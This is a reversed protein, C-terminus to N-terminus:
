EPDSRSVITITLSETATGGSHSPRMDLALESIQKFGAVTFSLANGLPDSLTAWTTGGDNSGQLLVTASDFTGTVQVSRDALGPSRYAVGTTNAHTLPTWVCSEVQTRFTVPRTITPTVASM